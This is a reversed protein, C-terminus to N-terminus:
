FPDEKEEEEEEDSIEGVSIEDKSEDDLDMNM